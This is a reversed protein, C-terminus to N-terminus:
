KKQSVEPKLREMKRNPSLPQGYKINPPKANSYSHITYSTTAASLRNVSVLCLGVLSIIVWAGERPRFDAKRIVGGGKTSASPRRRKKEVEGRFRPAHRMTSPDRRPISRAVLLTKKRVNEVTGIM